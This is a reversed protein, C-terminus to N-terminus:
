GESRRHFVQRRQHPRACLLMVWVTATVILLAPYGTAVAFVALPISVVLWVRLVVVDRSSLVRNRRAEMRGLEDLVVVVHFEKHTDVGAVVRRDDEAITSM